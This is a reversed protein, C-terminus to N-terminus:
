QFDIAIRAMSIRYKNTSEFLHTKYVNVYFRIKGLICRQKELRLNKM